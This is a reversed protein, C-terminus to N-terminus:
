CLELKKWGKIENIFFKKIAGKEPAKVAKKRASSSM